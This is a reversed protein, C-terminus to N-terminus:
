VHVPSMYNAMRFFPINWTGCIEMSQWKEKKDAFNPVGHINKSYIGHVIPLKLLELFKEAIPMLNSEENCDYFIAHIKRKETKNAVPERRFFGLIEHDESGFCIVVTYDQHEGKNFFSRLAREATATTCVYSNNLQAYAHKRHKTRKSPAATFLCLLYKSSNVFNVFVTECSIAVDTRILYSIFIIYQKCDKCCFRKYVASKNRDCVFFEDSKTPFDTKTDGDEIQGIREFDYQLSQEHHNHKKIGDGPQQASYNKWFIRCFETFATHQPNAKRLLKVFKLNEEEEDDDTSEEEENDDMRVLDLRFYEVTVESDSSFNGM